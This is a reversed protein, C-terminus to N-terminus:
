QAPVAFLLPVFALQVPMTFGGGVEFRAIRALLLGVVCAILTPIDYGGTVPLLWLLACAAVALGGVTLEARREADELACGELDRSAQLLAQEAIGPDRMSVARYDAQVRPGKLRMGR